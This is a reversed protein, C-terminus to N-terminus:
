PGAGEPAPGVDRRPALGLLRAMGSVISLCIGVVYLVTLLSVLGGMLISFKWNAVVTMRLETAQPNSLFAQARETVSQINFPTVPVEVTKGDGHIVLFAEDESQHGMERGPRRPAVKGRVFRDDIGIVPDVSKTQYPIVFFLCIQARATTRGEHRQFSVWSVPAVATVIGPFLVCFLFAIAHGGLYSGWSTPRDNVSSSDM